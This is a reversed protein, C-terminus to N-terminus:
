MSRLAFCAGDLERRSHTLALIYINGLASEVYPSSPRSSSSVSNLSPCTCYAKQRTFPELSVSLITRMIQTQTDDATSCPESVSPALDAFARRHFALSHDLMVDVADALEELDSVMM